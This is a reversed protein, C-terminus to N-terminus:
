LSWDDIAAKCNHHLIAFELILRPSLIAGSDNITKCASAIAKYQDANTAIDFASKLAELTKTYGVSGATSLVQKEINM